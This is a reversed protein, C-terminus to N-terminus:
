EFDDEYDEDEDDPDWDDQSLKEGEGYTTEIDKLIKEASIDLGTAAGQITEDWQFAGVHFLKRVLMPELIKQAGRRKYNYIALIGQKELIENSNLIFIDDAEAALNSSGKTPSQDVRKGKSLLDKAVVSLHSAVCVYVPRAKKFRRVQVSFDALNTLMDGRGGQLAYTHDIFVADFPTKEYQSDLEDYVTDYCLHDILILNGSNSLEANATNILKLKDDPLNEPFLIMNTLIFTNYRKYIYTSLLNTWFEDRGSEGHMIAVKRDHALLEAACNRIFQTKGINENACLVVLRHRLMPTEDDLLPIGYNGIPIKTNRANEILKRGQAASTVVLVNDDIQGLRTDIQQQVEKEYAMSDRPGTYTRRGITIPENRMMARIKITEDNVHYLFAEELAPLFSIATAGGLNEQMCADYLDLTRQALLTCADQLNTDINLNTNLGNDLLLERMRVEPRRVLDIISNNIKEQISVRTINPKYITISKAINRFQILTSMLCYYEASFEELKIYKLISDVCESFFTPDYNETPLAGSIVKNLASQLNEDHLIDLYIM